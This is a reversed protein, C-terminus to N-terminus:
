CQYKAAIKGTLKNLEFDTHDCHFSCRTTMATTAFSERERTVMSVFLKYHLKQCLLDATFCRTLSKCEVMIKLTRSNVHLQM